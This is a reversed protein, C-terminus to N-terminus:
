GKTVTARFTVTFPTGVARAQLEQEVPKRGLIWYAGARGDEDTKISLTRNEIPHSIGASAERIIGRRGSILHGGGSIVELEVGVGAVPDGARDVVEVVAPGPLRDGMPAAQNDGEVYRLILGQALDTVRDALCLFLDYLLANGYVLPVGGCAQIANQDTASLAVRALPVCAARACDGPPVDGVDPCTQRIRECIETHLGGNIPLTLQSFTCTPPQQPPNAADGVLVCFGERIMSPACGNRTDCDPVLAPVPDTLTERYALCIEVNGEELPEGTPNGANDTLQRPDLSHEDVVVIERDSADIAVGPQIVVSSDGGSIVNLGCVIGSGTVLRNLLWRKRNFHEQEMRLAAADLLKGYFYNNRVPISLPM